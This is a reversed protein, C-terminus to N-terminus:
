LYEVHNIMEEIQLVQWILMLNHLIEGISKSKQQCYAIGYHSINM